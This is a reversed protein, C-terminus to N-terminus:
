TKRFRDYEQQIERKLEELKEEIKVENIRKGRNRDKSQFPKKRHQQMWDYITNRPIETYTEIDKYQVGERRLDVAIKIVAPPYINPRGNPNGPPERKEVPSLNYKWYIVEKLNQFTNKWSMSLIYIAGFTKSWRECCIQVVVAISLFIVQITGPIDEILCRFGM